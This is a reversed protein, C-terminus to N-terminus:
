KLSDAVCKTVYSNRAAGALKKDDAMGDCTAQVDPTAVAITKM